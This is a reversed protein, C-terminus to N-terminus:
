GQLTGPSCLEACGPFPIFLASLSAYCQLASDLSLPFFVKAVPSQLVSCCACIGQAETCSPPHEKLLPYVLVHSQSPSPLPPLLLPSAAFGAKIARSFGLLWGARQVTQRQGWTTGASHPSSGAALQRESARAERALNEQHPKAAGVPHAHAGAGPLQEALSFSSAGLLLVHAQGQTHACPLLAATHLM